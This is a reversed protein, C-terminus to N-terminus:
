TPDGLQVPTRDPELLQRASIEFSLLLTLPRRHNRHGSRHEEVLATLRDRRLHQACHSDPALVTRDLLSTLEDAFWRDIPTAFGRKPRDVVSSPLMRRAADKHVRKATRGRLKHSPPLTEILEVVHRDLLPVRAEVGNAMSLKDGYLLLDDPLSMRTDVHLLQSFEDLHAVPRQWYEILDEARADSAAVPGLAMDAVQAPSFVQHIAAFRRVPDSEGLSATARRLRAAGPVAEGVANALSSGLLWRAHRGYREGLYRDYGAWPEDAGQGTLVVKLHRRVEATLHHFAFTSQSLVPEELHWVTRDFIDSFAGGDLHVPIHPSGLLAATEAADAMEDHSFDSGFGVTFTTLPTSAAKNAAALVMASDVGGSLLCGVPVDAVLQRGVAATVAAHYRETAEAVSLDHDIVPSNDWYRHISSGTPTSVLVHGPRLREVGRLPTHPSPLYGFHLLLRIADPDLERSVAPDALIARMESGFRLCRGDDHHYVPKIGLHDRALVLKQNQDDWIALGFMGNLRDLVGLGWEEYGHVIVETDSDTAFTHGACLLQARLERYNYIEGNLQVWVTRDENPIPQHGGELDIISLRRFAFGIGPLSLYGDDDPGRHAISAGMAALASPDPSSGDRRHIGSIGCM